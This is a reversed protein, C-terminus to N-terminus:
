VALLVLIIVFEDFPGLHTRRVEWLDIADISVGCWRSKSSVSAVPHWLKSRQLYDALGVSAEYFTELIVILIHYLKLHLPLRVSLRALSQCHLGVRSGM